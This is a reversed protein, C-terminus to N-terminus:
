QFQRMDWYFSCAGRMKMVKHVTKTNSSLGFNFEPFFDKFREELETLWITTKSAKEYLYIGGTDTRESVTKM